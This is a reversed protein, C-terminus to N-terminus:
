AHVQGRNKKQDNPSNNDNDAAAPTQNVSFFISNTLPLERPRKMSAKLSRAADELIAVIKESNERTRALELPTGQTKATLQINAGADLLLRLSEVNNRLVAYHLPTRNCNDVANIDANNEILLRIADTNSESVAYILATQGAHNKLELNNSYRVLTQLLSISHYNHIAAMLVSGYCESMENIDLPVNLLMVLITHYADDWSDILDHLMGHDNNDSNRFLQNALTVSCGMNIFALMQKINRKKFAHIFKDHIIQDFEDTKQAGNNLLFKVMIVHGAKAATDLATMGTHSRQNIDCKEILKEAIKINNNSAAIILATEGNHKHGLNPDAGCSLLKITADLNNRMVAVHLATYGNHTRGNVEHGLEILPKILGLYGRLIATAILNLDVSTQAKTMIDQRTDKSIRAGGKCYAKLENNVEYGVDSLLRYLHCIAKSCEEQTFIDNIMERYLALWYIVLEYQCIRILPNDDQTYLKIPPLCESKFSSVLIELAIDQRLQPQLQRLDPNTSLFGYQFVKTHAATAFDSVIFRAEEHSDVHIFQDCVLNPLDILSSHSMLIQLKAAPMNGKAHQTKYVQGCHEKCIEVALDDDIRAQAVIGSGPRYAFAHDLGRTEDHPLTKRRKGVIAGNRSIYCTNSVLSTVKPHTIQQKHMRFHIDKEVFPHNKQMSDYSEIALSLKHLHDAKTRDIKKRVQVAGAVITLKSYQKTISNMMERLLKLHESSVYESMGDTLGSERWVIVWRHNDNAMADLQQCIKHLETSLYALQERFKKTRFEIFDRNINMDLVVVSTKESLLRDQM